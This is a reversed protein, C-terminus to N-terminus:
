VIDTLSPYRATAHSGPNWIVWLRVSAVYKGKTLDLRSSALFRVKCTARINETVCRYRTIRNKCSIRQLSVFNSLTWKVTSEKFNWCLFIWISIKRLFIWVVGFISPLLRTFRFSSVSPSFRKTRQLRSASSSIVLLVHSHLISTEAVSSPWVLDIVWM